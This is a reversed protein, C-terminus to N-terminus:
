LGAMHEDADRGCRPKARRVDDPPDRVPCLRDKRRERRLKVFYVGTPWPGLARNLTARRHRAKWEITVPQDVPVGNMLSDSHTRTDEGGARFTQLTLGTADTEIALRAASSAVYSEATFGADVGLVRVVASSLAAPERTTPAPLRPPRGGQRTHQPPDPVARAGMSWHPFWTFTHRGPKM